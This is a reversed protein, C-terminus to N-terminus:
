QSPSPAAAESHAGRRGAASGRSGNKCVHSAAVHARRWHQEDQALPGGRSRRKWQPRPTGSSSGGCRRARLVRADRTLVCTRGAGRDGGEWELNEASVLRTERRHRHFFDHPQAAGSGPRRSFGVSRPACAPRRRRRRGELAHVAGPAAGGHQHHLVWGLVQSGAERHQLCAGGGKVWGSRHLGGKAERDAWPCM